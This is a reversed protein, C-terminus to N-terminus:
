TAAANRVADDIAKRAAQVSGVEAWTPPADEDRGGFQAAWVVRGDPHKRIEAVYVRPSLLNDSMRTVEVHKM